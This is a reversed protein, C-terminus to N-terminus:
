ERIIVRRNENNNNSLTHKNIENLSINNLNCISELEKEDNYYCIKIKSKNEKLGRIVTDETPLNDEKLNLSSKLLQNIKKSEEEKINEYEIKFDEILNTTENNSEVKIESVDVESTRENEIVEDYDVELEFYVEVGRGEVNVTQIDTCVIDCLVIDKITFLISFPIQVNFYDETINDRKLYKGRVDLNGDLTDDNLQYDIVEASIDIIKNYDKIKVFSNFNMKLNM